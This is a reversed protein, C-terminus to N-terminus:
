TVIGKQKLLINATRDSALAEVTLETLCIDKTDVGGFTLIDKASFSTWPNAMLAPISAIGTHTRSLM